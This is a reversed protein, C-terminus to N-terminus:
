GIALVPCGSREIVWRLEAAPLTAPVVLLDCRATRCHAAIRSSDETRIREVRCMTESLVGELLERVVSDVRQNEADTSQVIVIRPQAPGPLPTTVPNHGYFVLDGSSGTRGSELAAHVGSARLTRFSARVGGTHARAELEAQLRKLGRHLQDTVRAADLERETGTHRLVERTFPFGAARLLNSNEVLTAALEADLRRALRVALELAFAPLGGHELALVVRRIGDTQAPM